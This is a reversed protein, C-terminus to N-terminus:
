IEEGSKECEDGCEANREANCGEDSSDRACRKALATTSSESGPM